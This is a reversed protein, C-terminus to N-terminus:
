HRLVNQFHLKKFVIVELCDYSEGTRTKTLCLDLHGTIKAINLEKRRTHVSILQRTKLACGENEFKEPSTHVPSSYVTTKTGKSKEYM